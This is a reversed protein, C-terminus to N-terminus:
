CANPFIGASFGAQLVLWGTPAFCWACAGHVPAPAAARPYVKAVAAFGRGALRAGAASPGPLIRRPEHEPRLHSAPRPQTLLTKKVGM